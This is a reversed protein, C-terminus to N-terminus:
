AYGAFLMSQQHKAVLNLGPLQEDMLAVANTIFQPLAMRCLAPVSVAALSSLMADLQLEPVGLQRMLDLTHVVPVTDFQHSGPLAKWACYWQLSDVSSCNFMRPAIGSTSCIATSGPLLARMDDLGDLWMLDLAAYTITSAVPQALSNM